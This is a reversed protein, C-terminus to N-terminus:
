SPLRVVPDMFRADPAMSANKARLPVRTDIRRIEAARVYVSLLVFIIIGRGSASLRSRSVRVVEM